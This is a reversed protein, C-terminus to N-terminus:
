SLSFMNMQLRGLGKIYYREMVTLNQKFNGIYAM